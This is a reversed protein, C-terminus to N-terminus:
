GDFRDPKDKNKIQPVPHHSDQIIKVHADDLAWAKPAVLMAKAITEFRSAIIVCDSALLTHNDRESALLTLLAQQESHNLDAQGYCAKNFLARESETMM